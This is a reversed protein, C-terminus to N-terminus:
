LTRIGGVKLYNILLNMLFSKGERASGFISIIHIPLDANESLLFDVQKRSKALLKGDVVDLIKLPRVNVELEVVTFQKVFKIIM